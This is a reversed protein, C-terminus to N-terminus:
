SKAAQSLSVHAPLRISPSGSLHLSKQLRCVLGAHHLLCKVLSPSMRIGHFFYFQIVNKVLGKKSIKLFQLKLLERKVQLFYFLYYSLYIFHKGGKAFSSIKFSKGGCGGSVIMCYLLQFIKVYYCKIVICSTSNACTKIFGDHCIVYQLFM